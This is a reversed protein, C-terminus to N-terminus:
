YATWSGTINQTSGPAVNAVSTYLKRMTRVPNDPSGTISIYNYYAYLTVNGSAPVLLAFTGDPKTMTSYSPYKLREYNNQGTSGYWGSATQYFLHALQTNAAPDAVILVANNNCEPMSVTGSISKYAYALTFNKGSSAAGQTVVVSNYYGVTPLVCTYASQANLKPMVKIDTGIPVLDVTYNGSSDTVADTGVQAGAGYNDLAEVHINQVPNASVNDIITGTIRGYPIMYIKKVPNPGSFVPLDPLPANEVLYNAATPTLGYTKPIVSLTLAGSGATTGSYPTPIPPPPPANKQDLYITVGNIPTTRDIASFAQLTIIGTNSLGATLKTCNLATLDTTAGPAVHLITNIYSGATKGPSCQFLSLTINMGGAVTGANVNNIIFNPGPYATTNSTTTSSLGDSAMCLVGDEPVAGAGCNSYTVFGRITAPTIASLQIIIGTFDTSEPAVVLPNATYSANLYSGDAVGAYLVYSGPVVNYITFNGSADCDATYEPHGDIYVSTGHTSGIGALTSKDQVLGSIKVGAVVVDKNTVMGTLVSTKVIGANVYTIIVKMMKLNTSGSGGQIESNKAAIPNGTTRDEEGWMVIKYINFVTNDITEHDVPYPNGGCSAFASLDPNDFGPGLCVDPTIQLNAFGLHKLIELQESAMNFSTTQMKTAVAGRYSIGLFNVIALMLFTVLVATVMIEIFTMGRDQKFLRMKM